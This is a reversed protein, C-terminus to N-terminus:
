KRKLIVRAFPQLKGNEEGDMLWQWTDTSNDRVFTTHVLSSDSGKFLFAMQDGNQKAYGIAEGTLGGGGTVDLWLCAYQRTPEDWGIFVIAEYAAAGNSDKERSVEHLQMYQHALVWDADIDHTTEQGAIIGHLVWRGALQDILTDQFTAQQAYISITFFVLLIVSMARKMDRIEM